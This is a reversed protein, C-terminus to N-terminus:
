TNRRNELYYVLQVQFLENINLGCECKVKKQALCKKNCTSKDFLTENGRVALGELKPDTVYESSNGNGTSNGGGNTANGNDLCGPRDLTDM